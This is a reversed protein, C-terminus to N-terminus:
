TEHGFTAIKFILGYKSCRQGYLSFLILNSGRPYFSPIHAVHPMKAFPWTEHGFIAIKFTPEYRPFLQEYHPFLSLKSGRLYVSPIHAVEPVKALPWIHFNQFYVRIEPVAAWLAFIFGIEVGQSISLTCTCSRFKPWHGHQNKFLADLGLTRENEKKM